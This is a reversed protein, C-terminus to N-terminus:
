RVAKLDGAECALMLPTAGDGLRGRNVATAARGVLTSEERRVRTRGLWSM